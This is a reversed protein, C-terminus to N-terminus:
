SNLVTLLCLFYLVKKDNGNPHMRAEQIGGPDRGSRERVSGPGEKLVLPIVVNRARSAGFRFSNNCNWIKLSWSHYPALLINTAEHFNLAKLPKEYITLLCSTAITLCARNNLETTCSILNSYYLSFQRNHTAAATEVNHAFNAVSSLMSLM